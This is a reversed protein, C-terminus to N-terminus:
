EPINLPSNDAGQVMQFPLRASRKRADALDALDKTQDATLSPGVPAPAPGGYIAKGIGPANHSLFPKAIPRALLGVTSMCM